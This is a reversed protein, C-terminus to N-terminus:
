QLQPVGHAEGIGRRQLRGAVAARVLQEDGLQGPQTGPVRHEGLLAPVVRGPERGFPHPDDVREVAGPLEGLGAPGVPRDV